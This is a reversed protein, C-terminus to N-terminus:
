NKIEYVNIQYKKILDHFTPRSVGVDQATKSINGKNTRLNHMIFKLEAAERAEKLTSYQLMTKEEHADQIPKEQQLDLDFSSLFKGKTVVVGRRIKNELERINGPWAYNRMATVADDTYGSVSKSYELSFTKLFNAAITLIDDARERLPPIVLPVVNLRFFLDERFTKNKVDEKLDRNTASIIRIDLKITKNGGVREIEREQLFRLLKVQTALPLEGVEDLFVTGKQAAEVKGIKQSIAGTFAGKEHGFLEGEILNEPIAGCNIVVLPHEARPSLKHIARVVLEKGTGSEGLILVSADTAAVCKITSIVSRMPASSGIIGQFTNSLDMQSQLENIEKEIQYLHFARKLIIKIDDLNTPKSYFDYAGIKIAKYSNERENQGTIMIVKVEPSLEIFEKLLTFGGYPDDGFSASLDLDLTVVQPRVKKFIQRAEEVNGALFLEYGEKSLGWKMQKLILPEDDVILLRKKKDM